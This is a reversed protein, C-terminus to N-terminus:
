CFGYTSCIREDDESYEVFEVRRADSEECPEGKANYFFAVSYAGGNPTPENIRKSTEM